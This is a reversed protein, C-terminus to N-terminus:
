IMDMCGGDLVQSLGVMLLRSHGLHFQLFGQLVVPCLYSVGIFVLLEFVETAIM